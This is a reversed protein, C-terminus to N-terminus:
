QADGYQLNSLQGAKWSRYLDRNWQAFAARGATLAFKNYTAREMLEVTLCTSSLPIIDCTVTCPLELGECALISMENILISDWGPKFPGTATSPARDNPCLYVAAAINSSLTLDLTGLHIQRCTRTLALPHNRAFQKDGNVSLEIIDTQQFYALYIQNRLEAPLRELPSANITTARPTSGLDQQHSRQTTTQRATPGRGSAFNWELATLTPKVKM